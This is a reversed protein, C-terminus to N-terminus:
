RVKRQFQSHLRPIRIAPTVGLLYNHGFFRFSYARMGSANTRDRFSLFIAARVAFIGAIDGLNGAIAFVSATRQRFSGHLGPKSRNVKKRCPFIRTRM